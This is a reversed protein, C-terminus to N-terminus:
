RTGSKRDCRRENKKWKAINRRGESRLKGSPKKGKEKPRKRRRRTMKTEAKAVLPEQLDFSVISEVVTRPKKKM